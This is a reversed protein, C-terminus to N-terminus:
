GAASRLLREIAKTNTDGVSRGTEHAGKFAILTSQEYANFRRVIDKQSDFDVLFVILHQFEPEAGLRQLIPTQAACTPCWSARIHVLIPEDTKQAAAFQTADFPMTEAAFSPAAILLPLLVVLFARILRMM